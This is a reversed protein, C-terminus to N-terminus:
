LRRRGSQRGASVGRVGYLKEFDRSEAKAADYRNWLRAPIDDAREEGSSLFTGSASHDKRIRRVIEAQESFTLNYKDAPIGNIRVDMVLYYPVYYEPELENYNFSHSVSLDGYRYGPKRWSPEDLAACLLYDLRSEADKADLGLAQMLDEPMALSDKVAMSKLLILAAENRPHPIPDYLGPQQRFIRAMQLGVSDPNDPDAYEASEMLAKRQAYSYPYHLGDEPRFIVAYECHEVRYSIERPKTCVAAPLRIQPLGSQILATPTDRLYDLRGAIVDPSNDIRRQGDGSLRDFLGM